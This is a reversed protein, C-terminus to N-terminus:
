PNRSGSAQSSSYHYVIDVPSLGDKKNCSNSPQPSNSFNLDGKSPHFFPSKEPIHIRLVLEIKLANMVKDIIALSERMQAQSSNIHKESPFVKSLKASWWRILEVIMLSLNQSNDTM